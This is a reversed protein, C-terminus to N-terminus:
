EARRRHAPATASNLAHELADTVEECPQDDEVEAQEDDEQQKRRHEDARGLYQRYERLCKAAGRQAYNSTSTVPSVRSSISANYSGPAESSLDAALCGLRDRWTM